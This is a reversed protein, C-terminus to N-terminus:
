MAASDNGKGGWDRPLGKESLILVNGGRKKLLPTRNLRKTDEGRKTVRQFTLYLGKELSDSLVLLFSGVKDRGTPGQLKGQGRTWWRGQHHQKENL